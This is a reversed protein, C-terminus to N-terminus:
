ESAVTITLTDSYSTGNLVTATEWDSNNITVQFRANDDSACAAVNRSQGTLPTGETVTTFSGSTSNDFGVSYPISTTGGDTLKFPDTADGNTSEFTVSYTSFGIGGVCFDEIGEASTGSAPDEIELDDVRTIEISTTFSLTIVSDESAEAALSSASFSFLTGAAIASFLSRVLKKQM